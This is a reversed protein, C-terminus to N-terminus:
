SKTSGAIETFRRVKWHGGIDRDLSAGGAGFQLTKKGNATPTPRYYEVDVKASDRWLRIERVAVLADADAFRCSTPANANDCVQRAIEYKDVASLTPDASVLANQTELTLRADPNSKTSRAVVIKPGVHLTDAAYRLVTRLLDVTDTNAAHKTPRACAAIALITVISISKRVM